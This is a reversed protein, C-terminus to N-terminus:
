RQNILELFESESIVRIAAGEQIYQEAKAQKSSKREGAGEGLVLYTLDRTVGSPAEGGLAQVQQQAQKRKLQQLAGTFVFSKGALPGAEPRPQDEAPPEITLHQLLADMLEATASLGGVVKEAIKGGVTHIAALEEEGVQRVRELTGYERQLIGAVHKGLEEIGLARLFTALPMQRHDDIQQILNEASKQGMRELPVLDEVTLKYLDVLSRLLKKDYTQELLKDGLGQIELVKCYHAISGIVADRCQGPRECKLFDGELRVPGGCSPCETPYAILEAGEAPPDSHEVVREVKPIVDGRRSVEVV